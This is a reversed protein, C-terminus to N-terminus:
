IDDVGGFMIMKGEESVTMAHFYVPVPLDVRLRAWQRTVLSLQWVDGFVEEGDYGGFIWVVEKIQVASHCRRAEPYGDDSNDITALPDPKTRTYYWRRHVISFTPLDECRDASFSTGGGVVSLQDLCSWRPPSARLDLLHVDM